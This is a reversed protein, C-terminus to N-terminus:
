KRGIPFGRYGYDAARIVEGTRWHRFSAVFGGGGRTGADPRAKAKKAM